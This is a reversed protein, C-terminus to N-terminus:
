IYYILQNNDKIKPIIKWSLYDKNQFYQLTNIILENSSDISLYNKYLKENYDFRQSIYYYEDNVQSIDYIKNKVSNKENFFPIDKFEM